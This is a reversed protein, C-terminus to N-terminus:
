LNANYREQAKDLAELLKNVGRKEADKLWNEWDKDTGNNLIYKTVFEEAGKSLDILIANVTESEKETLTLNPDSPWYGRKSIKDIAEQQIPSLNFYASRRDTRLHLGTSFLGYTKQLDTMAPTRDTYAPYKAMGKEDLNYTVGEIGMTSLEAGSPSLLYDLVQLALLSNKSKKVVPGMSVKSVEKMKGKGIPLAARMDYGPVTEANQTNLQEMKGIWSITVFSKDKQSINATLANATMTLFEPALLKEDYLKKVFDIVEKVKKSTGGFQWKGLEEDYYEQPFRLGSHGAISDIMKTSNAVVFPYSNPYLEKLKKLTQYFEEQNTWEKLGHKDFIDKRYMLLNSTVELATDYKPYVYLGKGKSYWYSLKGKTNYEEAKDFFMTKLNPLQDLHQTIEEFAGQDGYEGIDQSSLSNQFIDPMDDGSAVLVSTKQSLISASVPLVDLDVGTRKELEKVFESNNVDPHDTTSILATIKTGDKTLPLKLGGTDGYDGEVAINGASGGNTGSCASFMSLILMLCIVLSIPKLAKKM